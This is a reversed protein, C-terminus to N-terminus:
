ILLRLLNELDTKELREIFSVEQIKKRIGRNRLLKRKIPDELHLIWEIDVLATNKYTLPNTFFRYEEYQNGFDDILSHVNAYLKHKRMKALLSCVGIIQIKKDEKSYNPTNLLERFHDINDIKAKIQTIINLYLYLQNTYQQIYINFQEQVSKPLVEYLALGFRIDSDLRLISFDKIRDYVLNNKILQNKIAEAVLLSYSNSSINDELLNMAMEDSPPCKKITLHLDTWITKNYSFRWLEHIIFYLKDTVEKPLDNTSHSILYSINEIINIVIKDDYPLKKYKSNHFISEYLNSILKQLDKIAEDTFSIERVDYQKFLESLENTNIFFLLIFLHLQDLKDIKTCDIGLFSKNNPTQHSNLIGSITDKVLNPFYPNYYEICNSLCFNLTHQFKNVLNYINSNWSTGGKEAQTKQRHIKRSLEDADRSNVSFIKYSVLDQLTNKLASDIPLKLLVTNLDFAGIEQIIRSSDVDPREAVELRIMQQIHYLNYLCIFYLVYLGKNWFEPLLIKYRKYAEYYRGLRCLIYPLFLDRKDYNIGQQELGRLTSYLADFDLDYFYDIPHKENLSEDIKKFNENTIIKFQDIEYIKNVFAQQLLFVRKEKPYSKIFERKEHNHLLKNKLSNFYDSALQLGTAHYNWFKYSGKPFFYKLGDGVVTLETQISTLKQYLVGILDDSFNKNIGYIVRLQKYLNKGKLSDLKDLEENEINIGCTSIYEDPKSIDVVNIGKNEYYRSTERDVVDDTLLFVRQMNKNLVNKIDNLIMKLNLDSFSFGVFLVVNTTFLSTVFSRILPFNAAYNYYDEETLVINETNFDGHMKVVKNPYRYYPLDSDKSIIDYQKYNAQISQEILNDYNTTIIHTPNLQLIAKHIPNFTVRGNKLFLQVKEQYTKNGYTDKYIQAVKLDDNEEKINDPLEKKFAETLDNWTPVGSNASVGAGVFIVLKNQISAEHLHLLHTIQISNM